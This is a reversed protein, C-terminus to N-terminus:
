IKIKQIIQVRVKRGKGMIKVKEHKRNHFETIKMQKLNISTILSELLDKSHHICCQPLLNMKLQIKNKM